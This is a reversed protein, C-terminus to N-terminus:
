GDDVEKIHTFLHQKPYIFSGALIFYRGIFLELADFKELM